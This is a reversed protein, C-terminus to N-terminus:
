HTPLVSHLSASASDATSVKMTMTPVQDQPLKAIMQLLPAFARDLFVIGQVVFNYSVKM